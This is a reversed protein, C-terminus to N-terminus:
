PVFEEGSKVKGVTALGTLGRLSLQITRDFENKLVVTATSTTGDPYFQIPDSWGNEADSLGQTDMSLAMTSGEEATEGSVFTIKDPLTQETVKLVSTTEAEAGFGTSADTADGVYEPGAQAEIAYRETEPSFRFVQTEGTSMAKVRARSWEVRVLDAAKRLRHDAMPRDLAPWTISALVVLLCLALVVEVLTM